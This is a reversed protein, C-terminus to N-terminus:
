EASGFGARSQRRTVPPAPKLGAEALKAYVFADVPASWEPDNVSPPRPQSLPAFVSWQASLLSPILCAICVTILRIVVRLSKLPDHHFRDYRAPSAVSFSVRHATPKGILFTKIGLL